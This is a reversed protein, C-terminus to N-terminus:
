HIETVESLDISGLGAINLKVGQGGQGITVSDVRASVLVEQAVKETGVNASAKVQYSGPPMINGDADTGDWSFSVDGAAQTGMAITKVLQGSADTIEISLNTTSSGLQIEGTVNQGSELQAFGGPALVSRGVLSSAQLASNSQMSLSFKEFSDKLESVGTATEMQALQTIFEGNEQPELPDQNELQALMLRMFQDSKTEEVETENKRSLGLSDYLELNSNIAQM